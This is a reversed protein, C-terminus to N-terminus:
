GSLKPQILEVRLDRVAIVIEPSEIFLLLNFAIEAGSNRHIAGIGGRVLLVSRM